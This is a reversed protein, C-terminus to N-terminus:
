LATARVCLSSQCLLFWSTTDGPTALLLASSAVGAAEGPVYSAHARSAPGGRMACLDEVSIAIM